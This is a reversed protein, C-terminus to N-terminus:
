KKVIKWSASNNNITIKLLYIGSPSCSIDINFNDADINNTLIQAGQINYVGYSSEDSKKLGSIGITLNGETPNPYIKISHDDVIDSSTQTNSNFTQRKAESGQFHQMINERKVRNGAADYTYGIKSQAMSALSILLFLSCTYFKNM